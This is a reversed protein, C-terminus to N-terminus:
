KGQSQYHTSYFKAVQLQLYQQLETVYSEVPWFAAIVSSVSFAEEAM